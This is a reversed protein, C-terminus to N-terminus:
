HLGIAVRLASGLGSGAMAVAGGGMAGIVAARIEVYRLRKDMDELWKSLEEQRKRIADLGGKIEGLMLLLDDNM